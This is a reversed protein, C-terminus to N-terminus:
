KIINQLSYIREESTPIQQYLKSTMIRKYEKLRIAKMGKLFIDIDETKLRMQYPHTGVIEGKDNYLSVPHYFDFLYYNKNILIINFGYLEQINKIQCEGILHFVDYGLFALINQALLSYELSDAVNKDKLNSIDKLNLYDPINNQFFMKKKLSRSTKLGFYNQLYLPIKLIAENTNPVGHTKLFNLFDFLYTNDTIEYYNDDLDYYVKVNDPIFGYLPKSYKTPTIYGLIKHTKYTKALRTLRENVKFLMEKAPLNIIKFIDENQM